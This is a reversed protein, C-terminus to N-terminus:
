STGNSPDRQGTKESRSRLEERAVREVDGVAANLAGLGGDDQPNQTFWSRDVGCVEAILYVEARSPMQPKKPNEWRVITSESVEMLEALASRSLGAWARATRIRRAIDNPDM